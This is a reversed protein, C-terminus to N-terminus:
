AVAGVPQHDVPPAHTHEVVCPREGDFLLEVQGPWHQQEAQQAHGASSPDACPKHHSGGAAERPAQRQSAEAARREGAQVQGRVRMGIAQQQARRQGHQEM